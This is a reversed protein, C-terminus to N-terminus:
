NLWYCSYRTQTKEQFSIARKREIWDPACVRLVLYLSPHCFLLLDPSFGVSWDTLNSSLLSVISERGFIDSGSVKNTVHLLDGSVDLLQKGAPSRLEGAPLDSLSGFKTGPLEVVKVSKNAGVPARITIIYLYQDLCKKSKLM